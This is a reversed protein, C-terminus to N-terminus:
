VGKNDILELIEDTLQRLEMASHSSPDSETVSAGQMFCASFAVRNGLYSNMLDKLGAIIEKAVKSSPNYRNLVIKVLKNESKAFDLTATTAWLDTPSPQMPILILDAGRIATKAETETHPPSDIVIYDFKDKSQSLITSLRWGTGALFTVGTYGQGYKKERLSYWQGLSGQPDIDILAVRKGKQMLSVALCAALTTKGAGGKQQAITIITAM